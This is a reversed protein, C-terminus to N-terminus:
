HDYFNWPVNTIFYRFDQILRVPEYSIWKKIFDYKVELFGSLPFDKRLPFGKFGYDNLIRRLDNNNNYLIGYLDWSEREYWAANPYVVTVSDIMMSSDIMTNFFVRNNYEISLLNYVSRFRNRYELFDSSFLDVFCKYQCNYHYFFFFCILKIKKTWCYLISNHQYIGKFFFNTFTAFYYYLVSKKAESRLEM